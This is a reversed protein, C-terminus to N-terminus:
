FGMKSQNVTLVDYIFTGKKAIAVSISGLEQDDSPPSQNRGNSVLPPPQQSPGLM